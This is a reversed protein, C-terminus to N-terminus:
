KKVVCVVVCVNELCHQIYIEEWCISIICLTIVLANRVIHARSYENTVFWHTSVFNM